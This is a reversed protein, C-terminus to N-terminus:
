LVMTNVLGERRRFGMKSKSLIFSGSEVQFSSNRGLFNRDRREKGTRKM